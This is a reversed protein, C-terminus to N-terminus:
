STTHNAESGSCAQYLYYILESMAHANSLQSRCAVSMVARAPSTTKACTRCGMFRQHTPRRRSVHVEQALATGIRLPPESPRLCRRTIVGVVGELSAARVPGLGPVHDMGRDRGRLFRSSLGRCNQQGHGLMGPHSVGLLIDRSSSLSAVAGNFNEIM